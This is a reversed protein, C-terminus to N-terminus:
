AADCIFLDDANIHANVNPIALPNLFNCTVSEPIFNLVCENTATDFKMYDDPILLLDATVFSLHIGPLQNMLLERSCNSIRRSDATREGGSNTILRLIEHAMPSPLSLVPADPTRFIQGIWTTITSNETMNREAWVLTRQIEVHPDSPIAGSSTPTSFPIRSISELLCSSDFENRNTDNLILVGRDSSGGDRLISVSDYTRMVHGARGIGVTVITNAPSLGRRWANYRVASAPVLRTHAASMIGLAEDPIFNEHPGFSVFSNQEIVIIGDFRSWGSQNFRRVGPVTVNPIIPINNDNFRIPFFLQATCIM